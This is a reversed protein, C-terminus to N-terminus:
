HDRITSHCSACTALLNGYLEAREAQTKLTVARRALLRVLAADDAIGLEGSEAVFTLPAHQLGNAGALWHEDNPGILGEWMRAAAWQHGAMTDQIKTGTDPRPQGRFAIRGGIAQHCRACQRGLEAALRSADVVDEARALDQAATKVSALYPQWRALVEPEDLAAITRAATRVDALKSAVIGQEIQQVSAFRVHMRQQVARASDAITAPKSEADLGCAALLVVLYRLARM